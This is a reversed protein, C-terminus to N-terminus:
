RLQTAQNEETGHMLASGEASNGSVTSNTLTVSGNDVYIGGGYEASNGSVTSNTLTVSGTSYIGGGNNGAGANGGTIIINQFTTSAATTNFVRSNNDGSVTSGNGDITLNNTAWSIETGGLTVTRAMDFMVTDGAAALGIQVRLSGAGANNSNTVTLTALKGDWGNLTELTFPTGLEISGTGHELQWDGGYNASGTANTSAAVDLGTLGGLAAVFGEGVAGLATFCSYLLLDAGEKMSASWQALEQAYNGVNESNVWSSGLWFNGANGEATIAIGDLPSAITELTDSIVSLGAEDREIIRSITGAAGGYLLAEPHDARRDIVNLINTGGADPFRVVTTEGQVLSPDVPRVPGVAMLQVEPAEVRGAIVVEGHELRIGSGTLWLRGDPGVEVKNASGLDSRGTLYRPLDEPRLGLPAGSVLQEVPMADLVLGLKMGDHSLRVKSEGPVAALTITGQPATISGTNIVSGGVMWLSGNGVNLDAGNLITGPQTTDFILSTPNGTLNAFNNEGIAYFFGGEFGIRNATTVGFSGPVDLSAGNTFVWGAPNMLYLNSNGGSLRILGEIVSPNGGVVRGVVNQIAPNSLFNAVESPSLGFEQFSHFLNAGAQTGGGIHYTNGNYEIITGVGDPAPTISQAYAHHTVGLSLVLPLIYQLSKPM